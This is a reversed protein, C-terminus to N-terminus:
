AGGQQDNSTGRVGDTPKVRWALRGNQTEPKTVGAYDTWEDDYGLVVLYQVPRGAEWAAQVEDM